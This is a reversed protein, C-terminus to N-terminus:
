QQYSNHNIIMQANPDNGPYDVFMSRSNFGGGNNGFHDSDTSALMWKNDQEIGMISVNQLIASGNNM